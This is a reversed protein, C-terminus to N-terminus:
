DDRVEGREDVYTWRGDERDDTIDGRAALLALAAIAIGAGAWAVLPIAWWRATM